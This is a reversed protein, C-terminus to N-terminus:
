QLDEGSDALVDGWVRAATVDAPAGGRYQSASRM